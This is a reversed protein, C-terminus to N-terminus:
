LQPEWADGTADIATARAVIKALEEGTTRLRRVFKKDEDQADRWAKEYEGVLQQLYGTHPQMGQAMAEIAKSTALAWTRYANFGVYWAYHMASAAAPVHSIGQHRRLVEDASQTLRVTAKCAERAASPNENISNGYKVMANNYLDAERSQFTVVRTQAEFYALCEQLEKGGIKPSGFLGM